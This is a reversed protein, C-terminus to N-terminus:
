GILIAMPRELLGRLAKLFSAGVAGDVVRHDCSLTMSLRRGPVIEDGKVVPERRVQGVALIAGEPPNIVASFADIGYMGLNSISFTGNSMEEARLKKAKARGALEKVESAIAHISKKDADRVVPTVLGEAVAVAVSIDVRRHVLIAEATFQANCEPVRRLAIASAKVIMDNFSIKLAKGEEAGVALDANIQERLAHLPDADVDITLYFHPVNQKSETLRRAIAKRMMSLPRAEPEALALAPAAAPAPAAAAAAPAAAAPAAAAPAPAAAPKAAAPEAAAAPAQAAPATLGELDRAIIRGNPGSGQVGRLNLGREHALKRTYPSAKVRGAEGSTAEAAAAPEAKAPKAEAEAKAPEAKAEAKAPKAEAEAKAPEAKAEAKAPEEKAPEEKAAEAKAPEASAGGAKAALESVDEGAAGLIAVPDGLKVVAGAPALIQLLTGKDFARYEMTAKDTEVEALLDDVAVADGVKKHWVSIQGEEMTPSLKPMDLVKAM